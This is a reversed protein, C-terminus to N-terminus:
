GCRKVAYLGNIKMKLNYKNEQIKISSYSHTSEQPKLGTAKDTVAITINILVIRSRLPAYTWTM